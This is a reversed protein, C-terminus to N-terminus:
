CQPNYCRATLLRDVQPPPAQVPHHLRSGQLIRRRSTHWPESSSPRRAPSPFPLPPPPTNRSHMPAFGPVAVCIRGHAICIRSKNSCSQYSSSPLHILCPFTPWSHQGFPFHCGTLTSPSLYEPNGLIKSQQCRLRDRPFRPLPRHRHSAPPPLPDLM